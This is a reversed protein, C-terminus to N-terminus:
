RSAFVNRAWEAHLPSIQRHTRIGHTHTGKVANVNLVKVSFVLANTACGYPTSRACRPLHMGLSSTDGNAVSLSYAFSRVPIENRCVRLHDACPSGAKSAEEGESGRRCRRAEDLSGVRRRASWSRALRSCSCQGRRQWAICHLPLPLPLFVVYYDNGRSRPRRGFRCKTLRQATIRACVNM